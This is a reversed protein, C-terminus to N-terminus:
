GDSLDSCNRKFVVSLTPVSVNSLMMASAAIAIAAILIAAQPPHLALNAAVGAILVTVAAATSPLGRFYRKSPAPNSPAPGSLKAQVNFRALRIGTALVYAGAVIWGPLGLSYLNHRYLLMAPAVGFNVFDALSDLEAGVASEAGFRRAAFGDAVDLLAAMFIAALALVPQGESSLRISTLGCIVACLTLLNPLLSAAKGAFARGGGGRHPTQFHAESGPGDTMPMFGRATASIKRDRWDDDGGNFSSNM